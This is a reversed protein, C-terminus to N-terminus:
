LYGSHMSFFLYLFYLSGAVILGMVILGVSVLGILWHLRRQGRALLRLEILLQPNEQVHTPLASLKQHILRPLEPLMQAWQPAETLFKKQLGAWGVQEKLWRELIPQATTWLDLDPDLQRGLGETNLLTKQLLVLQPQIDVNFRRSADFLRLLVLGLSIERLPRDFFPECCARVASELEDVRTNKPVWGSEIHLTAVRKYDRRFFALFNQALYHKDVDSLTGMIGFDLAIYRNHDQGEYGVQVNGPHMDAHFFGDTFVQTFFIEVGDRSLKKLDINHEALRAVDSIPIGKMREMVFVSERCYDWFVEPVHLLNGRASGAPFNRRLLACNAAERLLDLEDHLIRDFEAVVENPKLRRGDASFRELWSAIVKLLALDKKIAAHMGPRRVKIAVARGKNKSDKLVAFHVQAISASAVPITEFADFLDTPAKGLEREIIREAVGPAEPPVRDQLASLEDAVDGPLMDRRTSLLQGFKVFLPGLEEFAKRLREGRPMTPTGFLALPALLMRLTWPASDVQLFTDLRYRLVVQAIKFTRALRM